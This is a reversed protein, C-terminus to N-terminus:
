NRNTLCSGPRGPMEEMAESTNPKGNADYGIQEKCPPIIGYQEQSFRMGITHRHYSDGHKALNFFRQDSM